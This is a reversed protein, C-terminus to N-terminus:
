LFVANSEVNADRYGSWRLVSAILFAGLKCFDEAEPLLIDQYFKETYKIPFLVSNLKRVTGLNNATLSAFSIRGGADSSSPPMFSPPLPPRVRERAGRNFPRTRREPRKHESAGGISEGERERGVKRRLWWRWGISV